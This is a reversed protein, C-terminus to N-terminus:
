NSTVGLTVDYFVYNNFINEFNWSDIFDQRVMGRINRSFRTIIEM